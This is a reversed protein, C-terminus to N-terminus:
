RCVFHNEMLPSWPTAAVVVYYIYVYLLTGLSNPIYLSVAPTMARFVHLDLENDSDTSYYYFALRTTCTTTTLVYYPTLRDFIIYVYTCVRYGEMTTFEFNGIEGGGVFHRLVCAIHVLHCTSQHSGVSSM